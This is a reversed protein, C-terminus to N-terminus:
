PKPNNQPQSNNDSQPLGHRMALGTDLVNRGRRYDKSGDGQVGVELLLELAFM